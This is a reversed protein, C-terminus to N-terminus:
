AAASRGSSTAEAAIETSTGHSDQRRAVRARMKSLWDLEGHLQITTAEDIMERALLEWENAGAAASRVDEAYARLRELISAERIAFSELLCGSNAGDAFVLKLWLTERHPTAHRSPQSRWDAFEREGAPTARYRRSGRASSADTLREVLRQKELVKLMDYVQGQNIEWGPGILERFRAALEYGTSPESRVLLGLVAYRTDPVM